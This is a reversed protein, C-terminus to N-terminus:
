RSPPTPSTPPPRTSAASATTTGSAPDTARRAARLVDDTSAPSGDEPRGTKDARAVLAAFDGYVPARGQRLIKYFYHFVAEDHEAWASFANVERKGLPTAAAGLVDAIRAWYLLPLAAAVGALASVPLGLPLPWDVSKLLAAGAAGVVLALTAAGAMVRKLNRPSALARVQALDSPAPPDGEIHFNLRLSAWPDIM